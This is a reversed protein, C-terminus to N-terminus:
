SALAQHCMGAPPEAVAPPLLQLFAPPYVNRVALAEDLFPGCAEALFHHFGICHSVLNDSTAVSPRLLWTEPRGSVSIAVLITVVAKAGPVISLTAPAWKQFLGAAMAVYRPNMGMFICPEFMSLHQTLTEQACEPKFM